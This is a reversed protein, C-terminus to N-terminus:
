FKVLMQLYSWSTNDKSQANQDTIYKKPMVISHGATLSLNQDVAYDVSFDLEDAIKKSTGVTGLSTGSFDYAGFETNHREFLQYDVKLTVSEVVNSQIHFAYGRINRRSFQDAYGLWKHATPMVQDYDKTSDFYELALRSKLAVIQYGLELDYQYEGHRKKNSVVRGNQFTSEFRYDFANIKSKIRTGFIYIDSDSTGRHDAKDLVYFDLNKAFSLNESSFYLGLFDFDGNSSTTINQDVLKGSFFQAKYNEDIKYTLMGADFSRGVNHWDVGGVILQDGFSLDQRGARLSLKSLISYDIYAQHVDLVTDNLAGSSQVSTTAGGDVPAVKNQGWIKTFQPQFFVSGKSDTPRATFNLRFRSATFANRDALTSNYDGNTKSEGRVRAQGSIEIPSTSAYSHISLFLTVFLPTLKLNM